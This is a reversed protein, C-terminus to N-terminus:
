IGILQYFDMTHLLTMLDKSSYNDELTEYIKVRTTLKMEEDCILALLPGGQQNTRAVHGLLPPPYNVVMQQQKQQTPFLNTLVIPQQAFLYHIEDM